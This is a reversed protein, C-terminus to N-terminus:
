YGVAGGEKEMADREENQGTKRLSGGERGLVICLVVSSKGSVVRKEKRKTGGAVEQRIGVVCPLQSM